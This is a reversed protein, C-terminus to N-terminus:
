GYLEFAYETPRTFSVKEGELPTYNELAKFARDCDRFYVFVSSGSGTMQSVSGLNNLRNKLD